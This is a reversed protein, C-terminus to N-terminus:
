IPPVASAKLCLMRVVDYVTYCCITDIMLIDCHLFANCLGVTRLLVIMMANASMAMNEAAM